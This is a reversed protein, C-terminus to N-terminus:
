PRAGTEHDDAAGALLGARVRIAARDFKGPGTLPLAAFRVVHRPVKFPALRGACWATVLELTVEDAAVICACPVETRLRDPVGVVVVEDVGPMDRLCAEVEEATVNEGGVKIRGEARGTFVLRGRDDLLGFDGTHFWGDPEIARETEEPQEFYGRMVLRRVQVEGAEGPRMDRGSAPDRVRCEVGDLVRGIPTVGDRPIPDGPASVAIPGYCETAGYARIVDDVGFREAVEKALETAGGVMRLSGLDCSAFDALDMERRLMTNVGWHATCREEEILRLSRAPDFTETFVLTAGTALCSLLGWGSGGLHFMPMSSMWRDEARLDIRRTHLLANTVLGWHELQVGKAPGTSGSTFKVLAVDRPGVQGALEDARPLFRDAASRSDELDVFSGPVEAAPRERRAVVVTRLGALGGRKSRAEAVLDLVSTQGVTDAVVLHAARSTRLTEILENPRLFTNLPVVPAGIRASGLYTEVFELSNPLWTAVRDGPGVGLGVLAGSMARVRGSLERYLVRQTRGARDVAILSEREPHALCTRELLMGLTQPRWAEDPDPGEM